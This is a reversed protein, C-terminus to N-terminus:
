RQKRILFVGDQNEPDFELYFIRKISTDNKLEATSLHGLLPDFPRSEIGLTWDMRRNPMIMTKPVSDIQLRYREYVFLITYLRDKLEPLRFSDGRVYAITSDLGEIFVISFNDKLPLLSRELRFRINIYKETKTNNFCSINSTIVFAFIVTHLASKYM